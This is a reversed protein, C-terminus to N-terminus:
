FFSVQSAAVRKENSVEPNYVTIVADIVAWVDFTM